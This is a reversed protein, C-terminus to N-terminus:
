PNQPEPTRHTRPNQSQVALGGIDAQSPYIYTHNSIATRALFPTPTRVLVGSGWFGEVDSM